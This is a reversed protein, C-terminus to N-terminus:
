CYIIVFQINSNDIFNVQQLAGDPLKETINNLASAELTGTFTNRHLLM